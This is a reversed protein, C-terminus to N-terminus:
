KKVRLVCFNVSHRFPPIGSPMSPPTSFLAPQNWMLPIETLAALREYNVIIEGYFGNTGNIGYKWHNM